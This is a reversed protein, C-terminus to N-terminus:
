EDIELNNYMLRFATEACQPVQGNGLLRIRLHRQPHQAGTRPIHEPEKGLAHVHDSPMTELATAGIPWGMLWEVWDPNLNKGFLANLPVTNREKQSPPNNNKSDNVLVTPFWQDSVEAVADIPLFGSVSEYMSLVSMPLLFLDGNRMTGPMM